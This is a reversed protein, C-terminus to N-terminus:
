IILTNDLKGMEEVAQIIRGIECDTYAAYGAFVEAQHAFLKKQHPPITDWRPLADPWTTLKAVGPIVGLRKQNGCISDRLVNWSVDFKGKFQGVWEAKPQHPSHTGGPVYYVFCPRDTAAANLERIYRIADDAMDTTLNYGPNSVGPFVQTHNRFLYPTWQVTAGGMFGYFYQFGMGSPWQEFPGAANRCQFGLANHNKGFWSTAYGNDKLMAGITANETGTVSNYGPDGTALEGIVGSDM